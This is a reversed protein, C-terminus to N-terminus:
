WGVEKGLDTCGLACGEDVGLPCGELKGDDFGLPDGDVLGLTKGLALGDPDGLTCGELKGDDFGLPDGDVLGLAM